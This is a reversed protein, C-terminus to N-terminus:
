DARGLRVMVDILNQEVSYVPDPLWVPSGDSQVRPWVCLDYRDPVVESM